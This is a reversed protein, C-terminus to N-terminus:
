RTLWVRGDQNIHVTAGDFGPASIHYTLPTAHIIPRFELGDYRIEAANLAAPTTAYRGTEARIRRQRYYLRRLAWKVRENPDDVFADTGRGAALGSFQVYGWREPMHMDIAGQPSWVWNAEPLPNTTGPKLRKAYDGGASDVLWEVRSFNVRWREGPNPRRHEPAAEKLIKWPMAIEASWGEDRDGPRNLTGRADIGIRLGTIDWGNV